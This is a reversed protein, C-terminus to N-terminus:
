IKFFSRYSQKKVPASEKAKQVGTDLIKNSPAATKAKAINKKRLKGLVEKGVLKEIVDEPLVAFMQQLDSRMEQEVLPLVDAATVDLGEQLGMLMYDAVKKVIYPSKPLSSSEIATTIQRDYDEYAQSQLLEFERKQLADREQAREEEIEKLRLELKEKELQEPSKKSREIEDEIVQAALQKIDIGISPDSLVKRPNKRLEEVFHAVQKQLDAHEGMRKQAVKSMQLEKTLYEAAEQPLDFPLKETFEKGDIKLKLEKLYKKETKTLKAEPKAELKAVAAKDSTSVEQSAPQEATNDTTAEPAQAEGVPAASTQESM